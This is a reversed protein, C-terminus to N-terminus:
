ALNWTLSNASFRAIDNTNVTRDSWTSTNSALVWTGGSSATWEGWGKITGWNATAQPFTVAGGSNTISNGSATGFQTTLAIRTYAGGTVETGTASTNAPHTTFLGMYPTTLVTSLSATTAFATLLDNGFTTHIM